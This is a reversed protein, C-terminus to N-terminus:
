NAVSSLANISDKSGLMNGKSPATKGGGMNEPQVMAFDQPCGACNCRDEIEHVAFIYAAVDEENKWTGASLTRGSLTRASARLALRLKSAACFGDRKPKLPYRYGISVGHM